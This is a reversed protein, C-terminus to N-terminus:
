ENLKSAESFISDQPIGQDNFPIGVCNMYNDLEQELRDLNSSM